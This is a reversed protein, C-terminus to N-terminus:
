SFISRYHEEQSKLSYREIIKKRAKEGLRKRLEHDAMLLALCEFWEIDNSAYLGDSNNDVVEINNGKPSLVTPIGLAMYQIAKFSCKGKEWDNDGLPMSGVDFQILDDIETRSNWKIYELNPIDFSPKQNSIVVFKLPFKEILDKLVNEMLPLYKSATTHSGTWGIILKDSANFEHTQNHINIMDVTSPLIKVNNNFQKAYDGLFSNGVTVLDAWKIIYKVKYYSKVFDFKSDLGNIM